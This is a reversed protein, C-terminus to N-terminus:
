NYLNPLFKTLSSPCGSRLLQMCEQMCCKEAELMRSLPANFDDLGSTFIGHGTVLACGAQKIAPPVTHVIGGTGTGIDGSVLPIGFLLCESDSSNNRSAYMSMIVSFKPHGHLIVRNNTSAYIKKHASLESSATIGSSSSGDLPVADICAELDELSSGTQSIFIKENFVASINGFFSDVLRHRVVSRGAEIIMRLTETENKAAGKHLQSPRFDPITPELQGLISNLHKATIEDAADHYFNKLMDDFFKVYTSFCASSFSVFAQELSVHGWSAIGRNKIIVSKRASLAKSISHADFSEIVPIDHFFTKTECDQPIIKDHHLNNNILYQIISWYPESPKAFLLSNINMLDFVSLLEPECDALPKNASIDADLFMMTTDIPQALGQNSLKSIFKEIQSTM